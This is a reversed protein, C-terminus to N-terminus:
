LATVPENQKLWKFIRACARVDALADHADDFGENFIHQHAEILKPWKYRGAGWSNTKPLKCLETTANMTCFTNVLHFTGGCNLLEQEISILKQDFKSNHAVALNSQKSLEIFTDIACQIPMGYKICEDISIGHAEQARPHIHKYLEPKILTNFCSRENFEEDLLVCALQVIHAQDPHNAPENFLPLGSTETDFILFM